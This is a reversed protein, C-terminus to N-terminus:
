MSEPPSLKLLTLAAHRYEAETGPFRRESTMYSRLDKLFNPDSSIFKALDLPTQGANSKISLTEPANRFLVEVISADGIRLATHLACLGDTTKVFATQPFADLILVVSPLSRKAVAAHLATRGLFDVKEADAGGNLLARVMAEDGANAALMLPMQRKFDHLNVAKPSTAVLM